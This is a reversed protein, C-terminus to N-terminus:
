RTFLVKVSEKFDAMRMLCILADYIVNIEFVLYGTKMGKHSIDGFKVVSYTKVVLAYLITVLLGALILNCTNLTRKMREQHCDNQQAVLNQTLESDARSNLARRVLVHMTILLILNCVLFAINVLIEIFAAKQYKKTVIFSLTCLLGAVWIICIHKIFHKRDANQRYELPKTIARFRDYSLYMATFVGTNLFVMAIDSSITMAESAMNTLYFVSFLALSLSGALDCFCLHVILFNFLKHLKKLPDKIVVLMILGNLIISIVAGITLVTGFCIRIPTADM